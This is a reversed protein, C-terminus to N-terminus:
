FGQKELVNRLEEQFSQVDEEDPKYGEKEPQMMIRGTQDLGWEARVGDSFTVSGSVITGPRTVKNVEVQVAWVPQLEAAEGSAPNANGPNAPGAAVAQDASLHKTAEDRRPEEDKWELELDDVLFRVDMYTVSLNYEEQLRKQVEAPKAGSRVWEKVADTQEPTLNMTHLLFCAAPLELFLSTASSQESPIPSM